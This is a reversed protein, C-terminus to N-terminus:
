LTVVVRVATAPALNCRPGFCKSHRVINWVSAFEYYCVFTETRLAVGFRRCHEGGCDPCKKMFIKGCHCLLMDGKGSRKQQLISM